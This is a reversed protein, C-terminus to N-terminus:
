QKPAKNKRIEKATRSCNELVGNRDTANKDQVNVHYGDVDITIILYGEADTVEDVIKYDGSFAALEDVPAENQEIQDITEPQTEM